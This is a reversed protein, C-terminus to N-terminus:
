ADDRCYSLHLDELELFSISERTLNLDEGRLRIISHHQTQCALNDQIFLKKMCSESKRKVEKNSIDKIEVSYNGCLYGGMRKPNDIGENNKTM